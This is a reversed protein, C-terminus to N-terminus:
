AGVTCFHNTTGRGPNSGPVIRDEASKTDLLYILFENISKFGLRRMERMLRAKVDSRITMCVYGPKPM